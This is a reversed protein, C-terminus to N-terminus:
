ALVSKVKAGFCTGDMSFKLFSLESTQTDLKM